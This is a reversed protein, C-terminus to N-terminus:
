LKKINWEIYMKNKYLLIRKTTANDPLNIIKQYEM